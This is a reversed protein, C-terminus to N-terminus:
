FSAIAADLDTYVELFRKFGVMELVQDVRPQPNLLKFHQQFGRERDRDIARIAGWGVEPDPIEEGRLLAAELEFRLLM